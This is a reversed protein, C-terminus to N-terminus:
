LASSCSAYAQASILGLPVHFNATVSLCCFVPATRGACDAGPLIEGERLVTHYLLQDSGPAIDVFWELMVAVPYGTVVKFSGADKRDILIDDAGVDVKVPQNSLAAQCLQLHLNHGVQHIAEGDPIDNLLKLVCVPATDVFPKILRNLLNYLVVFLPPHFRRFKSM